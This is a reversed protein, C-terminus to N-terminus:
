RRFPKINRLSIREIVHPAVQIMVTGNTHVATIRYPGIARPELKGPEYVLKLVEQNPQYDFTFRKRNATIRREDILQQRHERILHLDSVLPINLIMDRHFALAGPTTQLGSHYSARTAYMANALAADVLAQANALGDPPNWRHLVRLSNGVAQHMWECIANAQPNKATTPRCQIDNEELMHQFAWGTFEGGQDFVCSTPKPYRALWM